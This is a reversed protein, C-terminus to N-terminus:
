AAEEFRIAATVQDISLDYDEAVSDVSEGARVLSALVATSIGTGTVTPRGFGVRPNITV